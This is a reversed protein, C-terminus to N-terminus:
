AIMPQGQELQQMFQSAFSQDEIVRRRIEDFHPNSVLAQIAQMTPADLNYQQLPNVGEEGDEEGEDPMEEDGYDVADQAGPLGGMNPIFGAM